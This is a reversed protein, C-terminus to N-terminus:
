DRDKFFQEIKKVALHYSAKLAGVSTGLIESMQEYKMEDYYKMNFVLRQKEPLTAIAKRLLLALEDGDIFEDAEITNILFSEEDDLSINQRKRERELFTISENIAIKYLWTSLKAEGRFHEISGWAKMFTNQLLDNADDHNNVMRRIQWYLPESYRKIVDGFAERCTSPERLRAVLELDDKPTEKGM